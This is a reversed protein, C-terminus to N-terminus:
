PWRKTLAVADFRGIFTDAANTSVQLYPYGAAFGLGHAVPGIRTSSSGVPGERLTVNTADLNLEFARLGSGAAVAGSWLGTTTGARNRVLFLRGNSVYVRLYDTQSAANTTVASPTLVLSSTQSASAATSMQWAISLTGAAWSPQVAKERAQVYQWTGVQATSLTDTEILTGATISAGSGPGTASKRVDWNAPATGDAQSFDDSFLPVVGATVGNSPASDPGTGIANTARLTFTYGNGNVLGTVTATTPVAGGAEATVTASDGASSTVTYSTIPSNGNSAPPTWSVDASANGATATVATPAGPTSQAAQPTVANSAASGGGPGLANTATVVFTYGIGNTLDSVRASTPVTGNADATVTTRDGASSTVTYSTIPNGGDSAPPTWSVDASADGTTATV